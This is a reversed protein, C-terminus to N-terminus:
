KESTMNGGLCVDAPYQGAATKKSNFARGVEAVLALGGDEVDLGADLEVRREDLDARPVVVLPTVRVLDDLHDADDRLLFPFPFTILYPTVSFKKM